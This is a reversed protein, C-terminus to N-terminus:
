DGEFLRTVIQTITYPKQCRPADRLTPPLDESGYGTVLVFPVKRASLAEAVQDSREGRLSVDLTAGDIRQGSLVLKLAAGVTAVPGIVVAGLSELGQRLDEAIIFEDEVVLVHRGSLAVAQWDAM